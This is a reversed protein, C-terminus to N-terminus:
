TCFLVFVFATSCNSARLIVFQNNNNESLNGNQLQFAQELKSKQIQSLKSIFKLYIIRKKDFIAGTLVQL